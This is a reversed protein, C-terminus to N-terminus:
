EGDLNFTRAFGDIRSDVRHRGGPGRLSHHVVWPRGVMEPNKVFPFGGMSFGRFPTVIM